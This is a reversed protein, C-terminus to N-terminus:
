RLHNQSYLPNVCRHQHGQEDCRQLVEGRVPRLQGRAGGVGLQPKSAPEVYRGTHAHQAVALPTVVRFFGRPKRHRQDVGGIRVVYTVEHLKREISNTTTKDAIRICFTAYLKVTAPSVPIGSPRLAAADRPARAPCQGRPGSTLAEM